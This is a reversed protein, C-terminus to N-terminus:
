KDGPSLKPLVPGGPAPPLPRRRSRRNSDRVQHRGLLSRDQRGHTVGLV